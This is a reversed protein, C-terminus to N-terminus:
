LGKRFLRHYMRCFYFLNTYIAILVLHFLSQYDIIGYKPCVCMYLHAFIALQYTKADDIEPCSM